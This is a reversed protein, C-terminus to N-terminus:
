DLNVDAKLALDKIVAKLIKAKSKTDSKDVESALKQNAEKVTFVRQDGRM